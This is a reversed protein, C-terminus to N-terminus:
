LLVGMLLVTAVFAAAVSQLLGGVMPAAASVTSKRTTVSSASAMDYTAGSDMSNPDVYDIESTAKAGDATYTFNATKNQGCADTIVVSFNHSTVNASFAKAAVIMPSACPTSLAVGDHYCVETGAAVFQWSFTIADGAQLVLLLPLLLLSLQDAYM